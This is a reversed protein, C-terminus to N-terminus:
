LMVWTVSQLGQLLTPQFTDHNAMATLGVSGGGAM